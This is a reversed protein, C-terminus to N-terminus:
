PTVRGSLPDRSGELPFRRPDRGDGDDEAIRDFEEVRESDPLLRGFWWWRKKVAIM